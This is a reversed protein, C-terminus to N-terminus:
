MICRMCVGSIILVTIPESLASHASVSVQLGNAKFVSKDMEWDMNGSDPVFRIRHM